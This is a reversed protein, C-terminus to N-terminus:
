RSDSQANEELIAADIDERIVIGCGKDEFGKRHMNELLWSLRPTDERVYGLNERVTKESRCSKFMLCAAYPHYETNRVNMGCEM